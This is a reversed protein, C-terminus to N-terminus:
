YKIDNCHRTYFDCYFTSASPVINNPHIHTLLNKPINNQEEHKQDTSCFHPISCCLKLPAKASHKSDMFNSM